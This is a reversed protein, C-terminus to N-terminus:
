FQKRLGLGLGLAPQGNNLYFSGLSEILFRESILLKQGFGFTVLGLNIGKDEGLETRLNIRM